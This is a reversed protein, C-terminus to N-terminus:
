VIKHRLNVRGGLPVDGDPLVHVMLHLHPPLFHALATQEVMVVIVLNGRSEKGGSSRKRGHESERRRKRAGRRQGLETTEKRGEKRGNDRVTERWAGRRM